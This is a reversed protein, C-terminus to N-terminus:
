IGFRYYGVNEIICRVIVGRNHAAIVADSIDNNIFTFMAIDLTYEASDIEQIIQATTQDTPSFYSEVEVGGIVMVHPTNDSKDPGFKSNTLITRECRNLGV